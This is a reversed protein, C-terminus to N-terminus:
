EQLNSTKLLFSSNSHRATHFTLLKDIGCLDAIEKLYANVKQNSIIPLLEGTRLTGKYKDLIIKPFSLLPVNFSVNTKVLKGMIWLNSDFAERINNERLNFVDIYALGTFCSFLFMDRTNNLIDASFVTNIISELETM